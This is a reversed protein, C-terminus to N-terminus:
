KKNSKRSKRQRIMGQIAKPSLAQVRPSQSLKVTGRKNTATGRTKLLTSTDTQGKVVLNQLLTILKAQERQEDRISQLIEKLPKLKADTTVASLDAIKKPEMQRLSSLVAGKIDNFNALKQSLDNPPLSERYIDLLVEIKAILVFIDIKKGELESYKVVNVNTVRVPTRSFSELDRRYEDLKAIYIDILESGM